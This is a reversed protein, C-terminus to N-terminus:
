LVATNYRHHNTQPGTTILVDMEDTRGDTRTHTGVQVMAAILMPLMALPFRLINFLAISTFAKEATLMNDSSVSVFVAFTALSVQACACVCVCVCVCVCM